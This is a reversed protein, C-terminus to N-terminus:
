SMREDEYGKVVRQQMHTSAKNGTEEEYMKLCWISTNGSKGTMKGANGHVVSLSLVSLM